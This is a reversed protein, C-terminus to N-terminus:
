REQERALKEFAKDMEAVADLAAAKPVALRAAAQAQNIVKAVRDKDLIVVVWYTNDGDL